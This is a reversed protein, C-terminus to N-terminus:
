KIKLIKCLNKEIAPMWWERYGAETPHVPDNMYLTRQEDSIGNLRDDNWLDVVGIGWKAQLQYLIDVMKGYQASEFRTGTYFVVPCGWVKKVYWIIYEMAGAITKRDFADPLFSEAPVGLPRDQSADNTSLQCVFLDFKDNPDLNREMRRIYSNEGMDTLTTGDVAEKVIECSNRQGILDAFSIGNAASGRTVSSGLFCLKKGRLCATGGDSEAKQGQKGLGDLRIVTVSEGPFECVFDPAPYEAKTEQPSVLTPEEFSNAAERGYGAMRYVSAKVMSGEPVELNHLCIETKAPNASVNVAKIIIDGTETEIGASYYLPRVVPEKACASQRFSGDISTCVKRGRVALELRYERGKEVEFLSQTLCSGRGATDESITSDQNQWGGIEWCLKNKDDKRGFQVAFGQFGDTEKAKMRITYRDWGIEPLVETRNIGDLLVDPYRVTEGTRDNTVTIETYEACSKRTCLAFAGTIPRPESAASVAAPPVTEASTPETFQCGETVKEDMGELVASLTYDGQHNMFLKQVYYNATGFARHNDFWILDPRWNVYDVNCLLPAYCALGVAGANRELGTMYSAEVLANYWTNGWSAYEGLFVKPDGKRFDDYRDHNALFWEPSMYYHEDVLDTGNERASKWGKEYEGGAAFPGSTGIIKIDPYRERIASHFYPYREFFADGVEENGIGIYELGFPEPHGLSARIGGWESSVDGRAFEILDLADGIWPGLEDIPVIRKHHPDYGGPLVPLPKAGIDECFQFYEYYGLGLTQNYGWNSRRAPRNEVAGISNKWRYMSDRADPDLSGDHVLCGGPFRMFRPKLDRLLEAIDKRLGNRRGRFTDAPFLSLFDLYVTGSDKATIALRGSYDTCPATFTLEYKKWDETITLKKEEYVRGDASRLSVLVQGPINGKRKIYGSFYYCKGEELPIGSNFGLNWVGAQSDTQADASEKRSGTFGANEGAEPIVADEAIDMVLYHPNKRSVPNETEVRLTVRDKRGIKEWATLSHYDARDIPAFEFARNQVLEAYLGGDAAHNLDEFFIGYLDGLPEQVAKTDIILKMNDEKRYRFGTAAYDMCSAATGEDDILKIHNYLM